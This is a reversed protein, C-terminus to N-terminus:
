YIGLYARCREGWTSDPALEHCRKYYQQARPDQRTRLLQGSHFHPEPYDPCLQAAKLFSRLAGASNDQEQQVLGLNNHALCMEPKLFVAMELAEKAKEQDGKKHYSWGLNNYALEPTNYTAQTILEEYLTIAEEWRNMAMLATGLNNKCIFFDPKADLAQRYYRVAQPYNRRGMYIFGMLHLSDAHKPDKELALELERIAQPILQERFFNSGLQYHYNAKDELSKDPKGTACGSLAVSGLGLMLVLSIKALFRRTM